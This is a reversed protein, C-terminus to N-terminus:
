ETPKESIPKIYAARSSWQSAAKYKSVSADPVYIIMDAPCNSWMNSQITPPTTATWTMEKLSTCGSFMSTVYDSINGTLGINGTKTLSKCNYFMNSFIQYASTVIPKDPIDGTTQISSANYMYYFMRNTYSPFGSIDIPKKISSQSFAYSFMDQDNYAIQIDDEYEVYVENIGQCYQFMYQYVGARGRPNIILKVNCSNNFSTSNFMNDYCRDLGSRLIFNCDRLISSDFANKFSSENGEFDFNKNSLVSSKFAESFGYYYPKRITLDDVVINYGTSAPSFFLPLYLYDTGTLFEVKTNRPNQSFYIAKTGNLTKIFFNNFEIYIVYNGKINEFPIRYVNSPLDIYNIDDFSYRMDLGYNLYFYGSTENGEFSIKIKYRRTDGGSPLAEIAAPYDDIRAGESVQGGKSVIADKIAEKADIIRDLNETITM